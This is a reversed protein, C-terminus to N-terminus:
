IKNRDRFVKNSRELSDILWKQYDPWSAEDLPDTDNWYRVIRCAMKEPLEQWELPFGIEVEIAERDEALQHYHAKAENGYMYLEVGVRNQRSNLLAGVHFGSKGIAFM